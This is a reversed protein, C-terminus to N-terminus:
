RSGKVEKRWLGKCFGKSVCLKEIAYIIEKSFGGSCLNVVPVATTKGLDKSTRRIRGILGAIRDSAHMSLTDVPANESESPQSGDM